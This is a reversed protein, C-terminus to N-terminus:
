GAVRQANSHGLTESARAAAHAVIPGLRAADDPGIRQTPFGLGLVGALQGAHDFVPASISGVDEHREGFAAYYGQARAVATQEKLIQLNDPTAPAFKTLPSGELAEWAEPDYALFVKGPAGAHIPMVQGVRFPRMVVHRTEAVAVVTRFAGDRTYFCASEGTEDRLQQLIPKVHRVVDLGVTGPTAWRVLGIGIRYRDGDRDLFGERVMNQVLRQCTSSPLGTKRILQQLTPEPEEVSFCDLVQAVKQLVLIPSASGQKTEVVESWAKRGVVRIPTCGEHYGIRWVLLGRDCQVQM